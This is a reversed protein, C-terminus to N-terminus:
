TTSTKQNQLPFKEIHRLLFDLASSVARNRIMERSGSLRLERFIGPGPGPGSLGVYVLGVPKKPSGGSPGAIGTISLGISSASLRRAGKAMELACEASVAGARELTSPRVKLLHTKLSNSYAITGGLFYRSSGATSTLRQGLMGGTCSEAVSLTLGKEILSRGLASELTERGEGFIHSGVATYIRHRLDKMLAAAGAHSTATATAHFDVQGGSALIMFSEGPKPNATLGQLKEDAASEVIGSLHVCLHHAHRWQAYHRKLLALVERAFIPALEGFPGPLLILM